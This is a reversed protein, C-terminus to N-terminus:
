KIKALSVEVTYIDTRLGSVLAYIPQASTRPPVLPYWAGAGPRTPITSEYWALVGAWGTADTHGQLNVVATATLTGTLYHVGGATLEVAPNDQFTEPPQLLNLTTSGLTWTGYYPRQTAKLTQANAVALAQAADVLECTIQVYAGLYNGTPASTFWCPVETWTQTGGTVTYATGSLNVTTGISNSAISDPDALRQSRWTQFVDLLDQWQDPTALGNVIWKRAALGARTETEEYGFPQTSLTDCTFLESDIALTISM